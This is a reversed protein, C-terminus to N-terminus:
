PKGGEKGQEGAGKDPADAPVDPPNRLQELLEAVDQQDRRLADLAAKEKDGMRDPNLKQRAFEDTRRNIEKQLTQLLKLQATPSVGDDEGGGSGGGEGGGAGGALRPPTGDDSKLSDIVQGLRRLAEAQLRGLEEDPLAEAAPPRAVLADARTAAQEMAEAARRVLRAFVPTGTLDKRGADATEGALAKQNDVLSTLSGRLPNGAGRRVWKGGRVAEALLRGLRAGEANLAEQRDRLQKLADAVRARRERDLQEETQERARELERAAEDLRDLAEEDAAGPDQGEAMQRRALEMAEAARGLAQGARGARQRTLQQLLEETREKLREQERRLAQLTRDREAADGIKQADRVKKKLREQEQFLGELEDESKRLKRALRDLEEERRDELGLDKVLKQLGAAGAQQKQRANNLQNRAIAEAAENMRGAINAEAAKQRADQLARATDPDRDKREEAVRQVKGLLQNTREELKKQADHAADLEARQPDSLRDRDAGQPFDKRGTFEDLTQQLKQQEELLHNADSRLERASAYPEMRDLLAGLTREVEEQHRRAEALAERAPPSPAAERRERGATERLGRGKRALEEALRRARAAEAERRAKEGPDAAAEARRGQAEAEAAKERAAGEATRAAEEAARARAASASRRAEDPQPRGRADEPAEAQRRAEGIRAEARELDNEALRDLERAVEGMLDRALTRELGNRRLADLVRDVRSRVGEKDPTGVQERVQQQLQEAQILNDAQEPTLRGSKRLTKEAAVVKGLADREKERLRVLDQQVRAQEQNLAVELADRGVIRLEVESSRGPEKNPTVDDFDDACAQLVVVDGERPLTGDSRTFSRVPLPRRFELRTPRPVAGAALVGPGAWAATTRVADGPGSLVLRRPPGARGVRYELFVSRVAYVPDEAVVQLRLVAEPLVALLDQGPAPRVLTVAPAPDPRLRLEFLRSNALGTEDEFHLAYAGALRPLFHVVFTRRDQELHADVPGAAASAAALAAAAGAPHPVALTALGLTLPASRTEPQYEVWARRLPRDARARLAVATGQVAEVNGSGPTLATPSPLGTYAPPHLWVRPSPEGQDLPVLLPPPLVTVVYEASVADNARVQFRFSRQVRGPDLRTTLRGSGDGTPVVETSHEVGSVGDFRFSVTAREPVVGWVRARVEFPENRGIRPKPEEVELRTQRPWERAGFPDALRALATTAQTPYLGALAAAAAGALGAALVATRLGRADVVRGFDCGKAKGLARRVAERRLPASDARVGGPGLFEVTSALADNLAPFREEVRLALTLDDARASLPRVLHRLAVVGAAALTGTLAAARVLAPLHWRWDLAGAALAAGLVVAALWGLGRVATVLRLRRRLAALRRRLADGDTARRIPAPM